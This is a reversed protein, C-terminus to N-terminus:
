SHLNNYMGLVCPTEPATHLESLLAFTVWEWSSGWFFAGHWPSIRLAWEEAVKIFVQDFPNSFLFHRQKLFVSYRQSPLVVAGLTLDYQYFQLWLCGPWHTVNVAAKSTWEPSQMQLAFKSLTGCKCGVWSPADLATCSEVYNQFHHKTNLNREM